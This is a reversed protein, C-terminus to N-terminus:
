HERRQADVNEIPEEAIVEEQARANPARTEGKPEADEGREDSGRLQQCDFADATSDATPRVGDCRHRQERDGAGIPPQPQSSGILHQRVSERQRHEGRDEGAEGSPMAALQNKMVTDSQHDIRVLSALVREEDRADRHAHRDFLAGLRGPEFVEAHLADWELAPKLLVVTVIGTATAITLTTLAMHRWTPWRASKEFLRLIIHGLRMHIGVLVGVLLLKVSFWLTFTQQAFILATGSAIAVFAAPSVIVVFFFRVMSHLRHLDTADGVRDRQRNLLPLCILGAAWVAIASLHLFKLLTVLM